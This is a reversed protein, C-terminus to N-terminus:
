VDAPCGLFVVGHALLEFILAWHFAHTVRNVGGSETNM